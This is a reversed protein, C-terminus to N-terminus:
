ESCRSSDMKIAKQRERAGGGVGLAKRIVEGIHVAGAGPARDVGTALAAAVGAAGLQMFELRGHADQWFKLFDRRKFDWESVAWNMAREWGGMLGIVYDTTPHLRPMEGWRCNQLGDLVAAWEAEAQLEVAKESAGLLDDLAKKLVAFPPLTKYEYTLIVKKVAMEVMGAAYPGLLDLWLHLVEKSLVKDFNGALGNLALIKRMEEDLSHAEEASRRTEEASRHMKEDSRHM